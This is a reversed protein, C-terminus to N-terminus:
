PRATRVITPPPVTHRSSSRHAHASPGFLLSRESKALETTLDRPGGDSLHGISVLHDGAEQNELRATRLGAVVLGIQPQRQAVPRTGDVPEDPLFHLPPFRHAHHVRHHAHASP